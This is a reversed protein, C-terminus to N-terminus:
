WDFTITRVTPLDADPAAGLAALDGSSNVSLSGPFFPPMWRGSSSIDASSEVPVQLAEGSEFVFLRERGSDDHGGIYILGSSTVSPDVFSELRTGFQTLDGQRKITVLEGERARLVVSREHVAGSVVMTGDKM